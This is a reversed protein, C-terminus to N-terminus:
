LLSGQEPVATASPAILDEQPAEPEITIPNEAKTGTDTKRSKWWGYGAYAVGAVIGIVSLVALGTHVYNSLNSLMDVGSISDSISQLPEKIAEVTAPIGVAAVAGQQVEPLKVLPATGANPVSTARVGSLAQQTEPGVIGDVAIGNRSQFAMVANKTTNGFDGDIKVAYGATTLLSQLNRVDAGKSGLRLMGSRQSGISSTGGYQKYFDALKTDYRNKKYAPGNYGRAFGSWDLGRLEDDLGFIKIFKAMIQAQGVLGSRADNIFEDLSAYGLKKWHVGMVQGVGYSCSAYAAYRDFTAAKKVLAWVDVQKSPNKIAGAIPSSVGAARAAAQVKPDCLKDFYHGEYRILPELKNAIIVGPSGNSEVAIVALFAPFPVNISAAIGKLAIQDTDSFKM